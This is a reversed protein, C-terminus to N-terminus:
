RRCGPDRVRRDPPLQRGPSRIPAPRSRPGASRRLSRSIAQRAACGSWPEVMEGVAIRAHPQRNGAIDPPQCRTRSGPRRRRVCRRCTHCSCGRTGPRRGSPLRARFGQFGGLGALGPPQADSRLSGATVDAQGGRVKVLGPQELWCSFVALLRLRLRPTDRWWEWVQWLSDAGPFLM